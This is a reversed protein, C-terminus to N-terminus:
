LWAPTLPTGPPKTMSYLPPFIFPNSLSGDYGSTPDDGGGNGAYPKTGCDSVFGYKSSASCNVNAFRMNSVFWPGLKGAWWNMTEPVESGEAPLSISAASFTM